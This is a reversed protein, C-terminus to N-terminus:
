GDPSQDAPEVDVPGQGVLFTRVRARFAEEPMAGVIEGGVAVDDGPQRVLLYVPLAISHHDPHRSLLLPLYPGDCNQDSIDVDCFDLGLGRAVREDFGAMFESFSCDPRSFKILILRSRSILLGEQRWSADRHESHRRPEWQCMGQLSKGGMGPLDAPIALVPHDMWVPEQGHENVPQPGVRWAAEASGPM